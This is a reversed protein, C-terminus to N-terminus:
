KHALYVFVVGANLGGQPGYMDYKVRGLSDFYAWNSQMPGDIALSLRYADGVFVGQLVVEVVIAPNNADPAVIETEADPNDHRGGTGGGIGPPPVPWDAPVPYCCELPRGAGRLGLVAQRIAEPWRASLRPIFQRKVPPTGRCFPAVAAATRAVTVATLWRVATAMGSESRGDRALWFGDGTSPRIGAYQATLNYYGNNGNFGPISGVQGINSLIDASRSTTPVKVLRVFANTALRSRMATEAFGSALLTTKDWSEYANWTWSPVAAGQAGAFEGYQQFYTETADRMAQISQVDAVLKADDLLRIIAPVATCILAAMIALVGVFEHLTFGRPPSPRHNSPKM